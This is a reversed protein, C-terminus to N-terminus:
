WTERASEPVGLVPPALDDFEVLFPEDSPIFTSNRHQREGGGLAGAGM